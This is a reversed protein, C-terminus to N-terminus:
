KLEIKLALHGQVGLLVRELTELASRAALAADIGRGADDAQVPHQPRYQEDQLADDNATKGDDDEEGVLVLLDLYSISFWQAFSESQAPSSNTILCEHWRGVLSSMRPSLNLKVFMM